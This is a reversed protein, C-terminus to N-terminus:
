HSPQHQKESTLKRIDPDFSSLKLRLDPEVNLRNRYRNKMHVLHSFTTECLYTTPFPLLHRVARKSIEPYVSRAQFWFELLPLSPFLLKFTSDCSLEILQEEEASPLEFESDVFPNKMWDNNELGFPFYLRLQSALSRMHEIMSEAVDSSLPQESSDIFDSLMHFSDYKGKEIRSCWLNLKKITAEIKDQVSFVTVSTGQLSSNLTNLINFIDALYALSSLWVFDNLYHTLQFKSNILFLRVEDRLELLRTLVKGRSLWRIESHLLLHEHDSGMENCLASFLRSNLPRAKIFNVIKVAEDLVIKMKSPM